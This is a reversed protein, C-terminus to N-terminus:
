FKYGHERLFHETQSKDRQREIRKDNEKECEETWEPNLTLIAGGREGSIVGTTLYKREPCEKRVPPADVEFSKLDKTEKGMLRPDRDAFNIVGNKDTWQYVDGAFSFSSWLLIIFVFFTRM